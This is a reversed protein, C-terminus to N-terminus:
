SRSAQHSAAHDPPKTSGAPRQFRKQDLEWRRLQKFAVVMPTTAFVQPRNTDCLSCRLDLQWDGQIPEENLLEMALSHCNPCTMLTEAERALQQSDQDIGRCLALFGISAIVVVLLAVGLAIALTSDINPM